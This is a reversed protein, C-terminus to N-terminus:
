AQMLMQLKYEEPVAKRDVHQRCERIFEWYEKRSSGKFTPLTTQPLATTTVLKNLNTPLIEVGATTTYTTRTCAMTSSGASSDAAMQKTPNVGM